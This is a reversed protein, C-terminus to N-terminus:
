APASRRPVLEPHAHVCGDGSGAADTQEVIRYRLRRRMMWLVALLDVFAPLARNSVGFKSRGFRRPRHHVVVQKVRFGAQRVLTPIFRHMGAYPPVAALCERRMVRLSCASDQVPDSTIAKRIGNAIRSSIRKLWSDYRIQRWGMVADADDLAALLTPLDAPDSQLDSDMTAVLRGRAAQFGAYFAASLGANAELRLLRIRPDDKGLGRIIEASSDTSGDDVFIVEVGGPLRSLVEALEHWLLPLSEAENYVPLIVSLEPDATM